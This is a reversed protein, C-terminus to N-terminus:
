APRDQDRHVLVAVVADGHGAVDADVAEREAEARHQPPAREALRAALEREARDRQAAVHHHQLLRVVVRRRGVDVARQLRRGSHCRAATMRAPGAALRSSPTRATRPRATRRCRALEHRRHALRGRAAHQGRGAHARAVADDGDLSSSAVALAVVCQRSTRENSSRNSATPRRASPGSAASGAPAGDRRPVVRVASAAAEVREALVLEIGVGAVRMPRVRRVRRRTIPSTTGPPGAAARGAHPAAVDHLRTSPVGDDIRLRQAVCMRALARRAARGRGICHRHAARRCAASSRRSAARADGLVACMEARTSAPM